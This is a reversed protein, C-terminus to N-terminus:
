FSDHLELVNVEKRDGGRARFQPCAFQKLHLMYSSSVDPGSSIAVLLNGSKPNGAARVYLTVGSAQIHSERAV